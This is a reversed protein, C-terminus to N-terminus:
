YLNSRLSFWTPFREGLDGYDEGPRTVREMVPCVNGSYVDCDTTVKYFTAPRRGARQLPVMRTINAGQLSVLLPLRQCGGHSHMALM